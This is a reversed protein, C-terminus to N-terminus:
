SFPNLWDVFDEANQRRRAVWDGFGDPRGEILLDDRGLTVYALNQLSSSDMHFYSSHGTSESLVEGTRPDVVERADFTRAGFGESSPDRGFHNFDGVADRRAEGVFVHGEPVQLDGANDVGVGPSGIFVADDVPTTGQLTLGSTLSGYSHGILTLHPSAAPDDTATRSAELGHLASDLYVAGDEASGRGAVNTFGPTEYGLWAITATSADGAVEGTLRNSTTHLRQANGVLGGLGSTITTNLGPVVVAVHDATDVDGIGVAARGQGSTDLLLLTRNPAATVQEHVTTLMEHLRIAEAREANLRTLEDVDGAAERMEAELRAIDAETAALDRELVLMNADHRVAAPLGDLAGIVDPDAAIVAARQEPTLGAWWDAVEYPDTGVPPPEPVELPAQQDAGDGDGDGNPDQPDGPDGQAGAGPDGQGPAAQEANGQGPDGQGPADQGPGEQGPAAVAADEGAQGGCDQGTVTSAARCVMTEVADAATPGVGPVAVALAGTLAVIVAGLGLWEVTSAGLEPDRRPFRM